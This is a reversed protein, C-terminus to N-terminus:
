EERRNGGVIEHKSSLSIVYNATLTRTAGSPVTIRWHFAGEIQRRDQDFREWPPDVDVIQVSVKDDGERVVPVRERIEIDADKSLNNTVDVAIEHSLGLNGGLLGSTRESFRVNRAVKVGEEVGLGLEIKGKPAVTHLRATLLYDGDVYVDAPGEPLPTELPNTLDLFRYVEPDERPVAVYRLECSGPHTSLPINHFNSDSPVTVAAAAAYSYDFGEWPGPVFYGHPPEKEAVRRARTSALALALSLSVEVSMHFRALFEVYSEEQTVPRLFGRASDQAGGLRLRAYNLMDTAATLETRVETPVAMGALVGDSSHSPMVSRTAKAAFSPSPSATVPPASMELEAMEDPPLTGMFFGAEEVEEESEAGALLASEELGDFEIAKQAEFEDRTISRTPEEALRADTLGGSEAVRDYDAFLEDVGTPPPRWGTRPPTPQRRGIRLAPLEPLESWREPDTTAVRLSVNEWDEGTDQCLQARMALEASDNKENFRIAYNPIWRAGPVLYEV